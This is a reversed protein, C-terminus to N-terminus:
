IGVREKFEVLINERCDIERSCRTKAPCKHCDTEAFCDIMADIIRQRDIIGNVVEAVLLDGNRQYERVKEKADM